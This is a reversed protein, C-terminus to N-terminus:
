DKNTLEYINVEIVCLSTNIQAMAEWRGNVYHPNSLLKIYPEESIVKEIFGYLVNKGIELPTLPPQKSETNTNSM